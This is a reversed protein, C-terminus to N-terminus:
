EAIYINSPRNILKVEGAEIRYDQVTDTNPRKECRVSYHIQCGAVIVHNDETGVKAYWNASRANTKVGLVTDDLIEVEGWVTNYTQGNPGTFWSDTTILYKGKM